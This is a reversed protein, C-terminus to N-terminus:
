AAEPDRVGLMSLIETQVEKATLHPLWEASIVRCCREFFEKFEPEKMNAFAISGPVLVVEGSARKVPTTHGTEIKLIHDIARDPVDVANAIKGVMAWYLRLLKINRPKSVEVAVSEGIRVGRLSALARDDEPVLGTMTRKFFAKSM